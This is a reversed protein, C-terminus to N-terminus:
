AAQSQSRNKMEMWYLVREKQTALYEQISSSERCMSLALLYLIKRDEEIGPNFKPLVSRVSPLVEEAVYVRCFSEWLQEYASPFRGECMNVYTAIALRVEPSGRGKGLFGLNMDEIKWMSPTSFVQWERRLIRCLPLVAVKEEKEQM